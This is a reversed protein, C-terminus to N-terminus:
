WARRAAEKAHFMPRVDNTDDVRGITKDTDYSHNQTYNRHPNSPPAQALSLPNGSHRPLVIYVANDDRKRFMLTQFSM